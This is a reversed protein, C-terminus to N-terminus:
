YIFFAINLNYKAMQYKSTLTGGAYLKESAQFLESFSKDSYSDQAIKDSYNSGTFSYNVTPLFGAFSERVQLKTLEATKDAMKLSSSNQYALNLCQDLTLVEPHTQPPADAAWIAVPFAILILAFLLVFIKRSM